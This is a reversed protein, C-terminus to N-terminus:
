NTMLTPKIRSILFREDEESIENRGVRDCLDSFHPDTQSRMKETLYYIVFNEDWHSPACDPRGDLHNKNFIM